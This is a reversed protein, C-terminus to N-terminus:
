ICCEVALDGSQWGRHSFSAMGEHEPCCRNGALHGLLVCPAPRAQEVGLAVFGGLHLPQDLVVCANVFVCINVGGRRANGAQQILDM